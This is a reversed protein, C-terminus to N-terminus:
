RVRFADAYSVIAPSGKGNFDDSTIAIFYEGPKKFTIRGDDFTYADALRKEYMEFSVRPHDFGCNVDGGRRQKVSKDGIILRVTAGAAQFDAALRPSLTNLTYVTGVQLPSASDGLNCLQTSILDFVAPKLYQQMAALEVMSYNSGGIALRDVPGPGLIQDSSLHEELYLLKLPRGALNLFEFENFKRKEMVPNGIARYSSFSELHLEQLKEFAPFSLNFAPMQDTSFSFKELSGAPLHDIFDTRDFPNNSVDLNKLVKMGSLDPLGTLYNSGLNLEELHDYAKLDSLESLENYAVDLSTLRTLASLDGLSKLDGMRIDVKELGTLRSLDGINELRYNDNLNLTKLQTLGSLDGATKFENRGLNLDTLKALASLDGVSEMKCAFLNLKRLNTLGSLNGIDTLERNYSTNLETLRTLGGLDGVSGLKCVSIDLTTLGTLGSLDGIDTLERNYSTNLSTLKTLRSLDGVSELTNVALNLDRLNTLGSLDGLRRCKCHTIWLVELSSLSELGKFEDIENVGFVARKVSTLGTLDVPGTLGANWFDMGTLKGNSWVLAIEASPKRNKDSHRRWSDPQGAKWGISALYGSNDNDRLIKNVVEVDSQDYSQPASESKARPEPEQSSCGGILILLLGFLVIRKVSLM